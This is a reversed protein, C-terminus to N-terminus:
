RNLKVSLTNLPPPDTAPLILRTVLFGSPVSWVTTWAPIPVSPQNLVIYTAGIAFGALMTLFWDSRLFSLM